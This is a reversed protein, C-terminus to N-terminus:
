KEEEEPHFQSLTRSNRPRENIVGATSDGILGHEIAFKQLNYKETRLADRDVFLLAVFAVAYILFFLGEFAGVGMLVWAPAHVTLAAILGVMLVLIPWVLVRLVDSRTLEAQMQERLMAVLSLFEPV